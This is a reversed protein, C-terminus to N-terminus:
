LNAVKGFPEALHHCPTVSEPLTHPTLKFKKPNKLRLKAIDILGVHYGTVTKASDTLLEYHILLGNRGGRQAVHELEILHELHRRIQSGSCGTRERIERRTFRAFKQESKEAKM